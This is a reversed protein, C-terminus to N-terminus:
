LNSTKNKIYILLRNEEFYISFFYNRIFVESQKLRLTLLYINKKKNQFHIDYVINQYLKVSVFCFLILSKAGTSGESWVPPCRCIGMTYGSLSRNQKNQVTLHGDIFPNTLKNKAGQRAGLYGKRADIASNGVSRNRCNLSFQRVGFTIGWGHTTWGGGPFSM